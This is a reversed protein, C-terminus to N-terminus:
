GARTKKWDRKVWLIQSGAILDIRRGEVVNIQDLGAWECFEWLIRKSCWLRMCKRFNDRVVVYSVQNLFIVEIEM